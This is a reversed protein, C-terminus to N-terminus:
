CPGSCRKFSSITNRAISPLSAYAGGSSWWVVTGTCNHSNWYSIYRGTGVYNGYVSEINNNYFSGSLTVCANTGGLANTQTDSGTYNAGVHLCAYNTTCGAHAQVPTAVGALGIALIIAALLAKLRM